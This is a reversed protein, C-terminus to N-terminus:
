YLIMGNDVVKEAESSFISCRFKYGSMFLTIVNLLFVAAAGPVLYFSYNLNTHDKFDFKSFEDSLFVNCKLNTLFLALFM